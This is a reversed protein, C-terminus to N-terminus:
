GARVFGSGGIMVYSGSWGSLNSLNLKLSSLILSLNPKIILFLLRFFTQSQSM